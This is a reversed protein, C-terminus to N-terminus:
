GSGTKVKGQLLQASAVRGMDEGDRSQETDRSYYGKM